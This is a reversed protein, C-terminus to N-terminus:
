GDSKGGKNSGMYERVKIRLDKKLEFYEDASLKLSKMVEWDENGLYLGLLMQYRQEGLAKMDYWFCLVNVFNGKAPFFYTYAPEASEGIIQNLSFAAELGCKDNRVKRAKKFAEVIRRGAYVWLLEKNYIEGLEYRVEAYELFAIGRCEEYGLGRGYRFYLYRIFKDAQHYEYESMIKQRKRMM